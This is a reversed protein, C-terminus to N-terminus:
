PDVAPADGWPFARAEAGTWPAVKAGPCAAAVQAEAEPPLPAHQVPRTYGPAVTELAVRGGSVGACLGCGSCLEGAVVKALTPSTPTPLREAPVGTRMVPVVREDSM